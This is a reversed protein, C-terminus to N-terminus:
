SRLAAAASHFRVMPTPKRATHEVPVRRGARCNGSNAISVVSLKTKDFALDFDAGWVERADMKITYKIQAGVAVKNLVPSVSSVMSLGVHTWPTYDLLGSVGNTWRRDSGGFAGLSNYEVTYTSATQNHIGFGANNQFLNGQVEHVGGVAAVRRTPSGTVMWTTCTTTWSKCTPLWKTSGCGRVPRQGEGDIEIGRIVLNSM